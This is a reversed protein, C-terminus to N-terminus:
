GRVKRKSKNRQKSNYSSKIPQSATNTLDVSSFRLADYTNYTPKDMVSEATSLFACIASTLYKKHM